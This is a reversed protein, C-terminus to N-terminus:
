VTAWKYPLCRMLQHCIRVYISFRRLRISMYAPLASQVTSLQTVKVKQCKSRLILAHPSVTVCQVNVLNPASLELRKGKVAGVCLCVFECVGSIVKDV